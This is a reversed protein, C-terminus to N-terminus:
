GMIPEVIVNVRDLDRHALKWEALDYQVKRLGLISETNHFGRRYRDVIIVNVVGESLIRSWGPKDHLGIQNCSVKGINLGLNPIVGRIVAESTCNHKSDCTDCEFKM